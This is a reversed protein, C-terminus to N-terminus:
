GGSEPRRIGVIGNQILSARLDVSNRIPAFSDFLKWDVFAYVLANGCFSFKKGLVRLGWKDVDDFTIACSGVSILLKKFWAVRHKPGAQLAAGRALPSRPGGASETLKATLHM